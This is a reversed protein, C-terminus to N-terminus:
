PPAIHMEGHLVVENEALVKLDCRPVSEICCLDILDLTVHRRLPLVPQESLHEDCHLELHRASRLASCLPEDLAKLAGSVLQDHPLYERMPPAYLLLQLCLALLLLLLLRQCRSCRRFPLTM